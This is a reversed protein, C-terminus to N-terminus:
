QNAKPVIRLVNVGERGQAQKIMNATGRGGPFAIVYDIPESDLMQRNRIPGAARGHVSWQAPYVRCKINRAEAWETSLKDAGSAGGNIVFGVEFELSDLAKFLMDKNDFNRGGCVLITKPEDSM